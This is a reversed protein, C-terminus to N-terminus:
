RLRGGRDSTKTFYTEVELVVNLSRLSQGESWTMHLITWGPRERSYKSVPKSQVSTRTHTHTNSVSIPYDPHLLFSSVFVKEPYIFFFLCPPLSHTGIEMEKERKVDKMKKM